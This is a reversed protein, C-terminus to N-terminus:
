KFTPSKAVDKICLHNTINHNTTETTIYNKKLQHHKYHHHLLPQPPPPTTITTIVTKINAIWIKKHNIYKLKNNNPTTTTSSMERTCKLLCILLDQELPRQNAFSFDTSGQRSPLALTWDVKDKRIQLRKTLFVNRKIVNIGTTNKTNFSHGCKLCFFAFFIIGKNAKSM